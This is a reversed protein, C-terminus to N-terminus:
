PMFKLTGILTSNGTGFPIYTASCPILFGRLFGVTNNNVEIGFISSASAFDAGGGTGFFFVLLTGQFRPHHRLNDKCKNCHEKSWTWVLLPRALINLIYFIPEHIM